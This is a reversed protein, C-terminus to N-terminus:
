AGNRSHGLELRDLAVAKARVASQPKKLTRAIKRVSQGNSLMECLRDIEDASWGAAHDPEGPGLLQPLLPTSVSM